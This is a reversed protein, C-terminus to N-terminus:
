ERSRKTTENSGLHPGKALEMATVMVTVEGFCSSVTARASWREEMGGKRQMTNWM